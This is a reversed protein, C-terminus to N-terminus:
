QASKMYMRIMNGDDEEIMGYFDWGCREYFETHSTILYATNIGNSFLQNCAHDLLSRAIGQHRYAEEVYLACLNPTLDPRKHFDNEIVGIGAIIRDDDGLIVYWAPVGDMSSCGTRMSELYAEVPVKWKEHFWDAALPILAPYDRLSLIKMDAAGQEPNEERIIRYISKESLYYQKALSGPSRGASYATRIEQNRDSLEKRISTADGWPKKREPVRPIYLFEGDIYKQVERLLEPPLVQTANKYSM